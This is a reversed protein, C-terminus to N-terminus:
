ERVSDSPALAWGSNLCAEQITAREPTVIGSVRCHACRDGCCEAPTLSLRPPIVLPGLVYTCLAWCLSREM